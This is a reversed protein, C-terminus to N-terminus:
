TAYVCQPSGHFADRYEIGCKAVALLRRTAAHVHLFFQAQGMLEIAEAYVHDFGPKGDGRFTIEGGNLCDGCNDPPGNDRAKGTGARLIDLAGPLRELACGMGANMDKQRGGVNMQLVLQFNRALLAQLLRAISDTQGLRQTLVHFERGFIGGAGIGFKQELDQSRHHFGACGREINGVCDAIGHRGLESSENM